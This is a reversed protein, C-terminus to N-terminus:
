GPLRYPRRVSLFTPPLFAMTVLAITKLAGSDLRSAEGLDRMAQSDRQAILNYAQLINARAGQRAFAHVRVLAIENQLREKNSQSRLLLGRLMRIQSDVNMRIRDSVEVRGSGKRNHTASLDIIQQQMAKVTEILMSLTESSHIAHRAMEHMM